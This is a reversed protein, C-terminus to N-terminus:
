DKPEEGLKCLMMVLEEQNIESLEIDKEKALKYGQLISQIKLADDRSLFKVYRTNNVFFRSTIRLSAFFPGLNADVSEIDDLPTSIAKSVRFFVRYSISLKERDIIVTDPFLTFPFVTEAKYLVEGVQKAAQFLKETQEDM